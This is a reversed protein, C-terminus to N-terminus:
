SGGVADTLSPGDSHVVSLGEELSNPRTDFYFGTLKFSAGMIPYFEWASVYLGDGKLPTVLFCYDSM